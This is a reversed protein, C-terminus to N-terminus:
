KSDMRLERHRNGSPRARARRRQPWRRVTAQRRRRGGGGGGGIQRALGRRRRRGCDLAEVVDFAFDHNRHAVADLQLGQNENRAARMARRNQQGARRVAGRCRMALFVLACRAASISLLSTASSARPAVAAVDADHLVHAALVTRLAVVDHGPRQVPRQIRGVDIVGGVGVVGDIPQDLVNGFDLPLTPMRPM